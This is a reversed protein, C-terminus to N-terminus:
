RGGVGGISKSDRSVNNFVIFVTNEYSTRFILNDISILYNVIFDPNIKSIGTVTFYIVVIEYVICFMGIKLVKKEKLNKWPIIPISIIPVVPM